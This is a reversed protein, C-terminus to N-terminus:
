LVLAEIYLDIVPYKETLVTLVTEGHEATSLLMILKQQAAGYIRSRHTGDRYAARSFIHAAIAYVQLLEVGSINKKSLLRKSYNIAQDLIQTDPIPGYGTYSDIKKLTKELHDTLVSPPICILSSALCLVICLTKYNM